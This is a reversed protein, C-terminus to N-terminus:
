CGKLLATVNQTSDYIMIKIATLKPIQMIASAKSKMPFGLM